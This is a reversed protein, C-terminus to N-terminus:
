GRLARLLHTLEDDVEAPDDVLRAVEARILERFRTRLRSLATRIAGDSMGLQQSLEAQRAADRTPDLLLPSLASFRERNGLEAQETALRDLVIQILTHAWKREFAREPTETTSLENALDFQDDQLSLHTSNFGGRRQSHASLRASHAFNRVATLLFCRFRGLQPDARGPLNKELFHAFFSQTMDAADEAGLGHRKLFAHLPAWYLGCLEELAPRSEEPCSKGADLVMTWCTTHFAPTMPKLCHFDRVNKSM